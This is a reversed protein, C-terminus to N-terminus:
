VSTKRFKVYVKFIIYEAIPIALLIGFFSFVALYIQAFIDRVVQRMSKVFVAAFRSDFDKVGLTLMQKIGTKVYKNEIGMTEISKDVVEGAAAVMMSRVVAGGTQMVVFNIIAAKKTEVFDKSKPKYYYKKFVTDVLQDYGMEANPLNALTLKIGNLNQKSFKVILQSADTVKKNISNNTSSILGYAGLMCIMLLPLFLYSLKAIFGWIKNPRNFFGKKKLVIIIVLAIVFGLFGFLLTKFFASSLAALIYSTIGKSVHM